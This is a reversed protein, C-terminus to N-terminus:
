IQPLGPDCVLQGNTVIRNTITGSSRVDGDCSVVWTGVVKGKANLYVGMSGNAPKASAAGAIAILAILSVLKFRSM